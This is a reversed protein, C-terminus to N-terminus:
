RNPKGQSDAAITLRADGRPGLVGTDRALQALSSHWTWRAEVAAARADALAGQATLVDLISGVGEAYRGRAVEESQVASELLQASTAVRQTATRLAHYSAYVQAATELRAREARAGAASATEQASVVDYQKSLGSFLPVSVGFTVAYTRGELTNINSLSRGATGGVTLSPRTASRAIRVQADSERVLARAAALDPRERTARAILSDVSETVERIPGTGSDPAIEFKQNAETGMALALEARAAELAGQASQADLEAQSVATRAQLVDAITALGVEHRHDAAQLNAKATQVTAQAADLLGRSAQFTFYARAASLVVNQVAANHTLDAAYLQQQAADISGRRAGFDFLLYQLSLTPTFTTREAPLRAPNASIVQSPGGIVAFDLSPLYRGRASGVGAAAARTQAWSARTEPSRSLALDVVDSLTLARAPPEIPKPAASRADVMTLPAIAENPANWAAAPSPSTSPTNGVRRPPGSACAALALLAFVLSAAPTADSRSRRGISYWM